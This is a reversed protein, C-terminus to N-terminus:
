LATKKYGVAEIISKPLLVNYLDQVSVKDVDDISDLKLADRFLGRVSAIQTESYSDPKKPRVMDIVIQM